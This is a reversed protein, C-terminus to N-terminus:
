LANPGQQGRFLRHLGRRSRLPPPAAEARRYGSRGARRDAAVQVPGDAGDTRKRGVAHESKRRRSGAWGDTVVWKGRVPASEVFAKLKPGSQDKIERLKVRGPKNEEFVEVAGAIMLKSKSSRGGPPPDSNKPRHPVSTEDAQVSAAPPFGDAIEIARRIKHLLTWASKYSGLGLVRQLQLTSMGNSHSTMM